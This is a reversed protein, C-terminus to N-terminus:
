VGGREVDEGLPIAEPTDLVTELEERVDASMRPAAVNVERPPADMQAIRECVATLVQSIRAEDMSRRFVFEGVGDLVLVLADDPADVLPRVQRAVQRVSAWAGAGALATVALFALGVIAPIFVSVILDLADQSLGGLQVDM